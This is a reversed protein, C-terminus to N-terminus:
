QKEGRERRGQVLCAAAGFAVGIVLGLAYSHLAVGFIIGLAFGICVCRAWSWM